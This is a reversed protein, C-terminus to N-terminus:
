GERGSGDRQAITELALEKNRVSPKVFVDSTYAPGGCILSPEELIGSSRVKFLVPFDAFRTIGLGGASHFRGPPVNFLYRPSKGEGTRAVAYYLDKIVVCVENVEGPKIASTVDCDWAACPTKNFGCYRGNVLLSAIVRTSPFRLFFSRGACDAPVMVKTRYVFRHCYLLDPREADRNGPVRVGKWHLEGARPLEQGPRRDAIEQEDLRAIQWLGGLLLESRKGAAPTELNFVEAEAKRDSDQRWDEDPSGDTRGSHPARCVFATSALSCDNRSV